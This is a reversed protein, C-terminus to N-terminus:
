QYTARSINLINNPICIARKRRSSLSTDYTVELVNFSGMVDIFPGLQRETSVRM